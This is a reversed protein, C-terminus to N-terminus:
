KRKKFGGTRQVSANPSASPSRLRGSWPNVKTSTQASAKPGSIVTSEQQVKKAHTDEKEGDVHM